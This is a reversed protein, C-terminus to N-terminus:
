NCNNNDVFCWSKNCRNPANTYPTGTEPYETGTRNACIPPVNKDWANCIGAGYNENYYFDRGESVSTMRVVNASGPTNTYRSPFQSKLTALSLCPCGTAGPSSGDVLRLLNLFLFITRTILKLSLM